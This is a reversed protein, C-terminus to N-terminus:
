NSLISNLINLTEAPNNPTAINIKIRVARKYRKIAACNKALHPSQSSTIETFVKIIIVIINMSMFEIPINMIAPHM